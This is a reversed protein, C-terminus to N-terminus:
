SERQGQRAARKRLDEVEGLERLDELVRDADRKLEGHGELVDFHRFHVGRSVGAGLVVQLLHQGHEFSFLDDREPRESVPPVRNQIAV